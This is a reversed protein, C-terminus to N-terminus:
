ARTVTRPPLWLTWREISEITLVSDAWPDELIRARLGAEDDRQMVLLARQEDLPGGIVVTGEDVLADIFEAHADWGDQERRPKAPEWASGPGYAVLYLARSADVNRDDGLWITWPDVTVIRLLGHGSWPDLALRARITAEDPADIVLVVKDHDGAPGGFAVFGDDALRDMFEAHPDWGAQERTPKAPDSASGPARTVVFRPM